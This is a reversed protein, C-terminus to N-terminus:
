NQTASTVKPLVYIFLCSVDGNMIGVASSTPSTPNIDIQSTQSNDRQGIAIAVASPAEAEVMRFLPLLVKVLRKSRRHAIHPQRSRARDAIAYAKTTM